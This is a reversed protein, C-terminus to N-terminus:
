SLTKQINLSIVCRAVRSLVIHPMEVQLILPYMRLGALNQITTLYRCAVPLFLTIRQSSSFEGRRLKEFGEDVVM